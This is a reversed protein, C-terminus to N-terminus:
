LRSSVPKYLRLWSAHVRWPRCGGILIKLCLMDVCDITMADFPVVVVGDDRKWPVCSKDDNPAKGDLQLNDFFDMDAPHKKLYGAATQIIYDSQQKTLYVIAPYSCAATFPLSPTSTTSAPTQASIKSFNVPSVFYSLWPIGGYVKHMFPYTDLLRILGYWIQTGLPNADNLEGFTEEYMEITWNCGGLHAALRQFRAYDPPKWSGIVDGMDSMLQADIIQNGIDSHDANSMDNPDFDDGMDLFLQSAISPHGMPLEDGMDIEMSKTTDWTDDFDDGHDDDVNSPGKPWPDSSRNAIISTFSDGHDVKGLPDAGAFRVRRM